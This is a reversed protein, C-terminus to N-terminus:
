VVVPEVGREEWGVGGWEQAFSKKKKIYLRLTLRRQGVQSEFVCVSDEEFYEGWLQLPSYFLFM